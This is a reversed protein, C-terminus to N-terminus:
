LANINNKKRELHGVKITCRKNNYESKGRIANTLSKYAIGVIDYPINDYIAKLSGFYFDQEGNFPKDLHLHIVKTNM